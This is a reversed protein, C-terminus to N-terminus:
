KIGKAIELLKLQRNRENNVNLKPIEPKKIIKEALENPIAPNYAPKHDICRWYALGTDDRGGLYVGPKGCFCRHFTGKQKNWKDWQLAKQKWNRVHQLKKNRDYYTWKPEAAEYHDIFDQPNICLNKEKAYQEVEELAPPTFKTKM